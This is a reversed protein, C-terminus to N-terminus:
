QPCQFINGLSATSARSRCANLAMNSLARPLHLLHTTVRDVVSFVPVLHDKLNRGVWVM